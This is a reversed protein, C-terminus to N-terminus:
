GEPFLYQKQIRLLLPKFPRLIPRFIFYIRYILYEPYKKNELLKALKLSDTILSHWRKVVKDPYSTLNIRFKCAEDYGLIFEEEDTILGKGLCYDWDRTKPFPLIFNISPRANASIKLFEITEKITEPREPPFGIMMNAADYLGVKKMLHAVACNREKSIGKGIYDLISQSGSEYGFGIRICGTEKLRRLLCEDINDARAGNIIYTIDLNESDLLNCFEHCWKNTVNTLEDIFQFFHIDYEKKFFKIQNITYRPSFQRIGKMHRYCFSCNNVCGRSSFIPMVYKSKSKIVNIEEDSLVGSWDCLDMYNNVDICYRTIDILKFAPVPLTDMNDIQVEHPNEKYSGDDMKYAIGNITAFSQHNSIAKLINKIVIEGERLVVIDLPTKTLLLKSISAIVGGAILPTNLFHTRIVETLRKLNRYGSTIAGFGILDPHYERIRSILDENLIKELCLDIIKVEHGEELISSAIYLLGYPIDVSQLRSPVYILLVKM